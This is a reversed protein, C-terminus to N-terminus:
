VISPKNINRRLLFKCLLKDYHIEYAFKISVSFASTFSKHSPNDEATNEIKQNNRQSFLSMRLQM